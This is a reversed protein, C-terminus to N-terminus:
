TARSPGAGELPAEIYRTDTDKEGFIYHIIASEHGVHPAADRWNSITVM